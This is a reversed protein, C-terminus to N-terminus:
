PVIAMAIGYRAQHLFTRLLESSFVAGGSSILDERSAM